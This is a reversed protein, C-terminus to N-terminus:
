VEQAVDINWRNQLEQKLTEDAFNKIMKKTLKKMLEKIWRVSHCCRCSITLVGLLLAMIFGFWFIVFCLVGMAASSWNNPNDDAHRVQLTRTKVTKGEDTYIELLYIGSDNAKVNKLQLSANVKSFEFQNPHPQFSKKGPTYDLIIIPSETNSAKMSWTVRKVKEDIGEAAGPFLVSLGATIILTVDDADHVRLTRTKVTKGEDTYIELLYIGSDNAKVNKLQLSANVKSFEFQNPHPQFSKKGPTYDLIIIPSGTNSAKMSWTVRKVKQNIGEAAGPFLVSLGATVIFKVDDVHVQLARIKVVIKGEETYMKLFYNGNDGEKLDQLWLSFDTKDFQSRYKFKNLYFQDTETGTTYNLITDPMGTNSAEYLWSVHTIKQSTEKEIGPLHVSSGATKFVRQDNNVHFVQLERTEVIFGNGGNHLNLFYNGSDDVKLDQLWLSFDTTNFRYRNKFKNLYLEDTKDGPTFDLITDPTGINSAKYSWSVYTITQSTRKEIGPFYVSFGVAKFFSLYGASSHTVLFLMAPFILM